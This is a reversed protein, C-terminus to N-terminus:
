FQLLNPGPSFSICSYVYYVGPPIGLLLGINLEKTSVYLNVTNGNVAFSYFLGKSIFKRQIISMNEQYSFLPKTM